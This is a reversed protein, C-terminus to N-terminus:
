KESFWLNAMVTIFLASFIIGLFSEIIYLVQYLLGINELYQTDTGNTLYAGASMLLGAPFGIKTIFIESFVLFIIIMCLLVRIPRIGYGAIFELFYNGFKTHLNDTNYRTISQRELFYYERQKNIVSGDSYGNKIGKYLEAYEKKDIILQKKANQSTPNLKGIVTDEDFKCNYFISTEFFINKFRADYFRCNRFDVHEIFDCDIFSVNQFRSAYFSTAKFICNIFTINRLTAFHFLMEPFTVETFKSHTIFSYSLNVNQLTKPHQEKIHEDELYLGRLDIASDLLPLKKEIFDKQLFHESAESRLHNLIHYKTRIGEKTKWRNQYHESEKNGNQPLLYISTYM